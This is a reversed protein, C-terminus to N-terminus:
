KPMESLREACCMVYIWVCVYTRVYMRVYMGLIYMCACMDARVRKQTRGVM